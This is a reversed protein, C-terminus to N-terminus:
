KYSRQTLKVYEFDLAEKHLTWSQESPDESHTWAAAYAYNEAAGRAGGGSVDALPLQALLLHQPLHAAGHCAQVHSPQLKAQPTTAIRWRVCGLTSSNSMGPCPQM